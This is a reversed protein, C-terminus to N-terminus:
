HSGQHLHIVRTQRALGELAGLRHIFDVALASRLLHSAGSAPLRRRFLSGFVFERKENASVFARTKGKKM